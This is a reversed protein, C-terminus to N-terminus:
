TTYLKGAKKEYRCCKTVKLLLVIPQNVGSKDELSASFSEWHSEIFRLREGNQVTEHLVVQLFYWEVYRMGSQMGTTSYLQWGSMLFYLYM